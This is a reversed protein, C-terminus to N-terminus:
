LKRTDSVNESLYATYEDAYKIVLYIPVIMYFLLRWSWYGCFYM